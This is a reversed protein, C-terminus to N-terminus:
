YFEIWFVFSYVLASDRVRGTLIKRTGKPKDIGKIPMMMKWPKVMVTTLTSNNPAITMVNPHVLCDFLPRESAEQDKPEYFELELTIPVDGSNRIPLKMDAKKGEKVALKIVNYSLGKFHLEKPCFVKPISVSGSLDLIYSGSMGQVSIKVQGIIAGNLRLNPIKLAFKFSACSHPAMILFHKDNYDYLHSRRVSYVYEETDQLEDNLCSVIIQVVFDQTSKNVIDLSEEVIQGPFRLGYSIDRRSIQLVDEISYDALSKQQVPSAGKSGTSPVLADIKAGYKSRLPSLNEKSKNYDNDDDALDPNSNENQIEEFEQILSQIQLVKKESIAGKKELIANLKSTKGKQKALKELAKTICDTVKDNKENTEEEESQDQEVSESTEKDNKCLERLPERAENEADDASIIAQSEQENVCSRPLSPMEQLQFLPAPAVALVQDAQIFEQVDNM